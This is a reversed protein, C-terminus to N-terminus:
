TTCFSHELHWYRPASLSTGAKAKQQVRGCSRGGLKLVGVALSAALCCCYYTVSKAHARRPSFFAAAGMACTGTNRGTSRREVAANGFHPRVRCCLPPLTAMTVNNGLPSAAGATYVHICLRPQVTGREAFHIGHQHLVFVIVRYKHVRGNTVCRNPDPVRMCRSTTSTRRVERASQLTALFFAAHISIRHFCSYICCCCVDSCHYIRM